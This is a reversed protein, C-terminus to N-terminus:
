AVKKVPYSSILKKSHLQLSSVAKGPDINKQYLHRKALVKNPCQSADILFVQGPMAATGGLGLLIFHAPKKGTLHNSSLLSNAIISRHFICEVSFEAESKMECFTFITAKPNESRCILKFKRKPFLTKCVYAEFSEEKRHLDPIKCATMLQHPIVKVMPVPFQFLIVQKVRVINCIAFNGETSKIMRYFQFITSFLIDQINCVMTSSKVCVPSSGSNATIM